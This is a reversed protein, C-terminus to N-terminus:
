YARPNVGRAYGTMIQDVTVPPPVNRFAIHIGTWVGNTVTATSNGTAGATAKTGKGVGVGGGAGSNTGLDSVEALSTLNANVYTTFNNAIADNTTTMCMLVLMDDEVTTIGLCTCTTGSGGNTAGVQIQSVDPYAGTVKFLHAMIHNGASGVTITTETGDSVKAFITNTSVGTAGAGQTFESIKTFGSPTGPTGAATTSASSECVILLIDGDAQGSATLNVAGTGNNQTIATIAPAM